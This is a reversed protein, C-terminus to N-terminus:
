RRKTKRAEQKERRLQDARLKMAFQYVAGWSISVRNRLGKLRLVAHTPEAEVVVARYDGRERLEDATEFTLRTKRERLATM